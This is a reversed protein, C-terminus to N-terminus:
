FRRSPVQSSSGSGDFMHRCTRTSLMISLKFSVRRLDRLALPPTRMLFFLFYLTCLASDRTALIMQAQGVPAAAHEEMACSIM